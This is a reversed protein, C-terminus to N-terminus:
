KMKEKLFEESIKSYKVYADKNFTDRDQNMFAHTCNEAILLEYDKSSSKMLKEFKKATKVDSFGTAFDNEGFIGLIPANINSIKNIKLDPIGYFQVGADFTDVHSMAAIVLAGGMCFGVVGVKKCGIEKLYRGAGDIDKIAGDWDLDSFLHGAEEKDHGIKGRYLDPVLTRFGLKAFNDATVTMSKNLGWWEQMVLLGLESDTNESSIYGDCDERDKVVFKMNREGETIINESLSDMSLLIM